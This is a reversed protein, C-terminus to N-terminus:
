QDFAAITNIKNQAYFRKLKSYIIIQNKRTHLNGRHFKLFSHMVSYRMSDLSATAKTNMCRAELRVQIDHAKELMKMATVARKSETM